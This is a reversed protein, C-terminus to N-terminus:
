RTAHRVTPGTQGTFGFGLPRNQLQVMERAKRAAPRATAALIVKNVVSRADKPNEELYHTLATTIAQDSPADSM